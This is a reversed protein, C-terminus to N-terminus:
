PLGLLIRVIFVIWMVILTVAGIAYIVGRQIVVNSTTHVYAQGIRALVFVWALVVFVVDAHRTVIELITLVYFLVPLEFQNSFSNAVQQTRVPWNPERLAIAQPKVAGSNFDDRRLLALWLLLGLTLLVEVFLPLLVTRVDM